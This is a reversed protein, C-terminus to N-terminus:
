ELIDVTQWYLGSDFQTCEYTTIKSAHEDNRQLYAGVETKEAGLTTCPKMCEAYGQQEPTGVDTIHCLGVGCDIFTWEGNQLWPLATNGYCKEECFVMSDCHVSNPFSKLTGESCYKGKGKQDEHTSASNLYYFDQDSTKTCKASVLTDDAFSCISKTRKLEKEECKPACYFAGGTSQQCYDSGCTQEYIIQDEACIFLSHGNCGIVSNKDRRESCSDGAQVCANDYCTGECPTSETMKYLSGDTAKKCVVKVMSPILNAVNKEDPVLKCAESFVKNEEDCSELCVAKNNIIKCSKGSECAESTVEYRNNNLACYKRISQSNEDTDCSESYDDLTCAEYQDLDKNNNKGSKSGPTVSDDDSCSCFILGCLALCNLLLIKKM